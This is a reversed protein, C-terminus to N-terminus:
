RMLNHGPRLWSSRALLLVLNGSDDAFPVYRKPYSTRSQSGLLASMENAVSNVYRPSYAFTHEIHAWGDRNYGRYFENPAVPLWQRSPGVGGGNDLLFTRLESPLTLGFQSEFADIDGASQPGYSRRFTIISV